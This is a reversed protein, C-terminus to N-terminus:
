VLERLFNELKRVQDLPRYHRAAFARVNEALREALAPSDLVAEVMAAIEEPSGEKLLMADVGNKLRAGVNTAPLVIPRGIAMFEPLKSPLRYDNFPGPRGPQVFLDASKMLDILFPREVRGLTVIGREPHADQLFTAGAFHDSGTRVLTVDRGRQRLLTIAAYLHSVEEANAQHVNGPYVIMTTGAPCGAARRITARRQPPLQRGFAELDVGPELVIAPLDPPVIEKLREEILTLGRAGKLFGALRAPDTM